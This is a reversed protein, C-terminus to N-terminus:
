RSRGDLTAQMADTWEESEPTSIGEQTTTKPDPGKVPAQDTQTSATHKYGAIVTDVETASLPAAM